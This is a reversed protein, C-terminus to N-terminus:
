EEFEYMDMDADSLEITPASDDVICSYPTKHQRQAEVIDALSDSLEDAWAEDAAFEDDTSNAASIIISHCMSRIDRMCLAKQEASLETDGSPFCVAPNSLIYKAKGLSEIRKM